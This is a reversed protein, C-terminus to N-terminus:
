KKRKQKILRDLRSRYSVNQSDVNVGLSIADQCVEIAKDIKGDNQYIIALYRFCDIAPFQKGFNPISSFCDLLEEKHEKILEINKKCYYITMDLARKDKDRLRYFLPILSQYFFHTDDVPWQDPNIMELYNLAFELDKHYLAGRAIKAVFGERTEGSYLLEVEFLEDKDVGYYKMIKNRESDDLSNFWDTLGLYGLLGKKSQEKNKDNSKNGKLFNLLGM